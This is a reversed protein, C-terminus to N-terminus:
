LIKKVIGDLKRRRAAHHFNVTRDLSTPQNKAYYILSGTDGLVFQRRDRAGEMPLAFGKVPRMLTGAYTKGKRFGDNLKM